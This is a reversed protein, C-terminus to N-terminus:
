SIIYAIAAAVAVGGAAIWTSIWKQQQNQKELRQIEQQLRAEHLNDKQSAYQLAQFM